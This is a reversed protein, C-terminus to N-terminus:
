GPWEPPLSFARPLLEAPRTRENDGVYVAGDPALHEVM